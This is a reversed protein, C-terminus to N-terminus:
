TGRKNGFLEIHLRHCYRWNHRRCEGLVFNRADPTPPTVGEPMLLIDPDNWGRLGALLSEIEPIDSPGTVV